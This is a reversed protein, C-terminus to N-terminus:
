GREDFKGTEAANLYWKRTSQSGKIALEISSQRSLAKKHTVLFLRSTTVNLKSLGWKTQCNFGGIISIM